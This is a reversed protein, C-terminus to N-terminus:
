SNNLNVNDLQTITLKYKYLGCDWIRDYGMEKMITLESKNPDANYKAILKKKGFNFKHQRLYRDYKNTSKYYAYNPDVIKNLKFGLKTYFNNDYNITWRRDAFSIISKPNFKKIFFKLLKSGIGSIRYNIDVAFRSLEFEGDVLKTMNRKNNFTMVAILINYYYAGLKINSRDEGQIHNKILFDNKEKSDIEKIICKRANLIKNDNLGLIHKLKSKVIDEKLIWEDEFIQILKYGKNNALKMKDLHYTQKKRGFFESHWKLGNFEIGIKKDDILIDIEQGNLISRNGNICKINNSKLFDYISLENVSKYSKKVLLNGLRLNEKTRSRLNNSMISENPYKIRYDNPTMNHKFKLHSVAVSGMIKGCEKCVVHNGEKSLFENKEKNKTVLSHYKIDDPFDILYDDISKNHDDKLHNIFCGTRNDVDETTWDCLGCKRTPKISKDKRDFFQDYWMIGNNKYYQRRLHATPIVYDPYTKSIHETITGSKNLTDKFEKGTLKCVLLCDLQEKKIVFKNTNRVQGGRTTIQVNNDKLIKSIEKHTTKYREALKHTSRLENNQYLRVIDNKNDTSLITKRM